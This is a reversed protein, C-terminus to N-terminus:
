RSIKYQYRRNFKNRFKVYKEIDNSKLGTITRNNDIVLIPDAKQKKAIVSLNRNDNVFYINPINKPNSGKSNDESFVVYIVLPSDDKDTDMMLNDPATAVLIKYSDFPQKVLPLHIFSQKDDNVTQEEQGNNSTKSPLLIKAIQNTCGAGLMEPPSPDYTKSVGNKEQKVNIEQPIKAFLAGFSKKQNEENVALPNFKISFGNNIPLCCTRVSLRILLIVVIVLNINFNKNFFASTLDM